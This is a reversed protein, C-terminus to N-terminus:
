PGDIAGTSSALARARRIDRSQPGKDGGCLLIILTRGRRTFCLRYGPGHDIRLGSVGDGVPKADGILGLAVRAIRGAIRSQAREDPLSARWAKFGATEVVDFM